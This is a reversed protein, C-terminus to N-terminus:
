NSLNPSLFNEEFESWAKADLTALASTTPEGGDQLTLDTRPTARSLFDRVRKAEAALWERARGAIMLGPLEEDLRDPRLRYLWGADFPQHVMLSPKETVAPNKELVTGSLPARFRVKRGDQRYVAMHDGRAVQEGDVLLDVVSAAGLLNTAFADAGIRATGDELLHVWVHEPSFFYGAPIGEARFAAMPRKGTAYSLEMRPAQARRVIWDITLFAVIMFSVFLATM